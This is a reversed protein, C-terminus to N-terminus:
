REQLWAPPKELVRKAAENVTNGFDDHAFLLELKARFLETPARTLFVNLFSIAEGQLQEEEAIAQQLKTENGSIKEPKEGKEKLTKLKRLYHDTEM